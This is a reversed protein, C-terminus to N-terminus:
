SWSAAAAFITRYRDIMTEIGFNARAHTVHAESLASRCDSEALLEHLKTSLLGEDGVPVVYRAAGPPLMARVDGVDTAVVPLGMAMAEVLSYPMQETDSSLVFVDFTALAPRPDDLHGTFTVRDAIGLERALSELRERESGDGVVVLRVRLAEVPLRAVARLLRAQNKEPRLGGVTGVVLEGPRRWAPPAASGRAFRELDIGNPIYRVRHRGLRWQRLAIRELTRSPVVVTSRGSLAIRRLWVRRPLQRGDSEDPGFGDEFHLHRCVPRWRNALAAELTGFNYTVLLDPREALLLSRFTRLNDPALGSTPRIRVQRFAYPVGDRILGAADTRGDLAVVTHALRCGFANAIDVTRRQAGGLAFSPFVHLLRLQRADDRGASYDM